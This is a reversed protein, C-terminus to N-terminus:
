LGNNILSKEDDISVNEPLIEGRQLNYLFTDQSIAGQMLAQLMVQIEAPQLKIDTFDKNMEFELDDAKIGMWDFAMMFAQHLTSEVTNAITVLSVNEAAQNLRTTEATLIGDRDSIMKAGVKLMNNEIDKICTNLSAFGAGQVEAFGFTASPESLTIIHESGLQWVKDPNNEVGTAFPTPLGVYHLGNSYDASKIYHHNNLNVLDTLPAKVINTSTDFPNTFIFPIYNLAKGKSLPVIPEGVQLYNHGDESEHVIQTYKGDILRLELIKFIPVQTYIDDVSPRLETTQLIVYQLGDNNEYWNIIQEANFSIFYPINNSTPTVDMDVLLGHRGVLFLESVMSQLFVTLSNTKVFDDFHYNEPFNLVSPPKRFMLGSLASVTKAVAGYFIARKLYGNYIKQNIRDGIFPLYKEHGNKVSNEGEYFDRNKEWTPFYKEYLPHKSNIM